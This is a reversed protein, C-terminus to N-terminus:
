HELKFCNILKTIVVCVNSLYMVCMCIIEYKYRLNIYHLTYFSYIVAHIKIAHVNHKYGILFSINNVM